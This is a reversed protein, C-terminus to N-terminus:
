GRSSILTTLGALGAVTELWSCEPTGLERLRSGSKSDRPFLIRLRFSRQSEVHLQFMLRSQIIVQKQLTGLSIKSGAVVPTAFRIEFNSFKLDKLFSCSTSNLFYTANGLGFLILILALTSFYM